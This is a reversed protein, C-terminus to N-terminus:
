IRPPSFRDLDRVIRVMDRDSVSEGELKECRRMTEVLEDPNYGFKAAYSVAVSGTEASPSLGARRAAESRFRRYIQRLAYSRAKATEYLGAVCDVHEVTEKRRAAPLPRLPGFRRGAALVAVLGLLLMQVFVPASRSEKATAWFDARERYGHHYEDFWVTGTGAERYLVNLLFELNGERDVLLNSGVDATSVAVVRGRGFAASLCVPGADDAFHVVADSETSDVRAPSGTEIRSVGRTYVTPQVPPVMGTARDMTMLPSVSPLGENEIWLDFRDLLDGRGGELPFFHGILVLRGGDQVWEALVDQEDEGMLQGVPMSTIVLADEPDTFGDLPKRWRGVPPYGLEELALYLAKYGGPRASYTTRNPFLEGAKRERYFVVSSIVLVLVAALVFFLRSKV